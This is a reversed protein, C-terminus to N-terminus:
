GLSSADKVSGMFVIAGTIEHRIAFIFPHNAVFTKPEYVASRDTNVVVATAAAAETGKENVEIFGKHFIDSVKLPTAPDETIGTLDADFTFIESLGMAELADKVNFEAEIKFKPITAKIYQKATANILPTLVDANINQEITELRVGRKPLFIFMTLENEQYPIGLIELARNENYLFENKMTMMDISTSDGSASHASVSNQYFRKAQTAGGNQSTFPTAWEAYFYVANALVLRTLDNVGGRPIVNEIKGKTKDTVWDNIDQRAQEYNNQFDKLQDQAHYCKTLISTFQPKVALSNELFVGNASNLQYPKGYSNLQHNMWVNGFDAIAEGSKGMVTQLFQDKTTANAGAHVMALAIQVSSPSFILNSDELQSRAQKYLNTAFDLADLAVNSKDSDTLDQSLSCQSLTVRKPKASAIYCAGLFVLSHLIVSNM